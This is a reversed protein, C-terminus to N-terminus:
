EHKDSDYEYVIDSPLFVGSSDQFAVFFRKGSKACRYAFDHQADHHQVRPLERTFGPVLDGLQAPCHGQAKQYSELAAILPLARQKNVAAERNGNRAGVVFLAVCSGVILLLGTALVVGIVWFIRGALSMKPKAPPPPPPPNFASSMTENSIWF